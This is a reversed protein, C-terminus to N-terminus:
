GAGMVTFRVSGGCAGDVTLTLAEGPNADIVGGASDEVDVPGGTASPYDTFLTNAASKWTAAVVGTPASIHYSFVRVFAGPGTPANITLAVGAGSAAIYAKDGAM